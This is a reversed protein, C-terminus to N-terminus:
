GSVRYDHSNLNKFAQNCSMIVGFENKIVIPSQIADLTLQNLAVSLPSM